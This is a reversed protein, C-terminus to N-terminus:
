AFQAYIGTQREKPITCRLDGNGSGLAWGDGLVIAGLAKIAV